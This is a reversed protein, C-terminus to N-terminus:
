KTRPRAPCTLSVEHYSRMLLVRLLDHHEHEVLSREDCPRIIAVVQLTKLIQVDHVGAGRFSAEQPRVSLM